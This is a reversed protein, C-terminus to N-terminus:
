RCIKPKYNRYNIVGKPVGTDRYFMEDCITKTVVKGESIKYEIIIPDYIVKYFPGKIGIISDNIWQVELGPHSLVKCTLSLLNGKWISDKPQAYSESYFYVIHNEYTFYCDPTKYLIEWPEMSGLLRYFNLTDIQYFDVLVISAKSQDQCIYDNSVLLIEEISLTKLNSYCYIDQAYSLKTTSVLLIAIFILKNGTVMDEMNIYQGTGASSM